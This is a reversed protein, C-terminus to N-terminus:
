NCDDAGRFFRPREARRHQGIEVPGAKLAGNVEDVRLPGFDAAAAADSRDIVQGFADVRGHERDRLRANQVRHTSEGAALRAGRDDKGRAKGFGARLPERFLLLERPDRRFRAHRDFPRVAKAEDIEDVAHRQGEDFQRAISEARAGSNAEYRLGSRHGRHERDRKCAAVKADGIRNRGAVLRRAADLIIDVIEDLIAVRAHDCHDDLLEALRSPKEGHRHPRRRFAVRDHEEM